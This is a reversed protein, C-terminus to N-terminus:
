IGNNVDQLEQIIDQQEQVGQKIDEYYKECIYHGDVCIILSGCKCRPSNM